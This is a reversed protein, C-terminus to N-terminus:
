LRGGAALGAAFLVAFLFGVRGTNMLVRNFRRPDGEVYVTRVLPVALPLPLFALLAFPNWPAVALVAAWAAVLSAPYEARAFGRGFRVALTRKGAARDTDIDRLNNTALIAVAFAGAPISAALHLPELRGAQLYATAAVCVPGFFVFVFLEGLGKYGFPWPGGTYALAAIVAAVGIALMAPGGALTLLLGDGGAVLAVALLGARMGRPSIWGAATARAPGLRDPTDAGRTFDSLDNALNAFIQLLLAALVCEIATDARFGAGAGYAAGIGAVVGSLSAPLTHPRAALFWARAAPPRAPAAAVGAASPDRKTSMLRDDCVRAPKTRGVM